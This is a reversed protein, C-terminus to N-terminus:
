PNAAVRIAPALRQARLPIPGWDAPLGYLEDGCKYGIVAPELFDMKERRPLKDYWKGIPLLLGEQAFAAAWSGPMEIIDPQEAESDRLM